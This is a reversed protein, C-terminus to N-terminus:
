FTFDGKVINYFYNCSLYKLNCVLKLPTSIPETLFIEREKPNTAADLFFDNWM